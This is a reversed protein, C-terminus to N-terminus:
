RKQSNWIAFFNEANMIREPTGIDYFRTDTVFSVLEEEKILIPLIDNELSVPLDAPIRELINKKFAFMGSEVFNLNDAEGSKDYLRVVGDMSIELNNKVYTNEKNNYAAVVGSKMSKKFFYVFDNIDIPLFSDGYILIFEDAIKKEAYKLAGGTGLQIKEHSYAICVGWRRGDGCCAMVDDGRYGVLVLIDKFRSKALFEIQYEIFPKGCLPVLPKPTKQTIHGM